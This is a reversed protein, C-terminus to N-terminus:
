GRRRMYFSGPERAPDLHPCVRELEDYREHKLQNAALLVEWEGNHTLFAELLYQENWFRPHELWEQPYDRPTFIDHVHVVVGPALSPIIQLFETLVDGEPRIIHSSDIFLIDNRGLGAFVSEGVAEVKKRVVTVGLQELWPMEYPEICVHECRYDPDTRELEAIALRAMRTSHGSGIEVIRAPRFHRIVHFWLEADGAEFNLNNMFFSGDGPDGKPIRSLAEAPEFQRLLEVQRDLDLDIGPLPRPERDHSLASPNFLPEYYHDVIPFIKARRLISKTLPMNRMSGMRAAKMPLTALAVFPAIFGDFLRIKVGL